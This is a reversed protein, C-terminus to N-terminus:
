HTFHLEAARRAAEECAQLSTLNRLDLHSVKLARGRPGSSVGADGAGATYRARMRYSGMELSTTGGRPPYLPPRSEKSVYCTARLLYSMLRGLRTMMQPPPTIPAAM